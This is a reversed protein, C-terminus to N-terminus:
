RSGAASTKDIDDSPKPMGSDSSSRPGAGDGRALDAELVSGLMEVSQRVFGIYADEDNRLEYSDYLMRIDHDAFSAALKQAHESEYGLAVLASTALTLASRFTEREFVDVGLAILRHAHARDIARAAIKVHPYHRKLLEVVTLIRDGGPVAVIILQAHTADAADLLDLRSADGYFVKIGFRKMLEIQAPDDDILTMEFGQSRLLRTIIQGFRGYGLVLVKQNSNMVETPQQQPSAHIRPVVFRDFAFLLIPTTAMSLAIILSLVEYDHQGISGSLVGAQLVVFGFESAQSLLVAFLVRDARHLNFITGLGFLVAVKIGILAVLLAIITGPADLFVSFTISMGVSIFFLGLLLGKFPELNSQLEHRYESDALLVGGLFAGLAASLGISQTLLSAGIVLALALATFVERVQARAVFYILPRVIFRAALLTAAFAVVILVPTVLDVPNDIADMAGALDTRIIASPAGSLAALIPVAALIPIVAMDQVLLVVLSARGTDTKTIERQAISQMAIATSSLSLALGITLATAWHTGTLRFLVAILIATVAVQPIGMGLVKNRLRWLESPQVELGILFLMMVVGFEAIHSIAQTDSILKFGYPGILIGAALYGLITGTGSWKALPVLAVTAALLVFIVLLLNGQM